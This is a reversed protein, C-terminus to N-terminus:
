KRGYKKEIEDLLKKRERLSKEMADIDDKNVEYWEEYSSYGHYRWDDAYPMCGCDEDYSLQIEALEDDTLIIEGALHKKLKEIETLEDKM